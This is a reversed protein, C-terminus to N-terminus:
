VVGGGANLEKQPLAAFFTTFFKGRNCSSHEATSCRADTAFKNRWTRKERTNGEMKVSQKKQKCRRMGLIQQFHIPENQKARPHVNRSKVWSKSFAGVRASPGRSM